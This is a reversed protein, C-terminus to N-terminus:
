IIRHTNEALPSQKIGSPLTTNLVIFSAHISDYKKKNGSATSSIHGTKRKKTVHCALKKIECLWMVCKCAVALGM